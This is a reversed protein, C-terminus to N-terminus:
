RNGVMWRGSPRQPRQQNRDHARDLNLLILTSFDKSSTVSPRFVGTESELWVKGSNGTLSDRQRMWLANIFFYSRRGAMEKKEIKSWANLIFNVLKSTFIYPSHTQSTKSQACGLAFTLTVDVTVTFSTILWLYDQSQINTRTRRIKSNLRPFHSVPLDNM